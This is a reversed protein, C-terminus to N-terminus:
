EKSDRGLYSSTISEIMQFPFGFYKYKNGGFM